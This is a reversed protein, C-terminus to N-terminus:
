AHGITLGVSTPSRVYRTNQYPLLETAEELSRTVLLLVPLSILLSFFPNVFPALLVAIAFFIFYDTLLNIIASIPWRWFFLYSALLLVPIFSLVPRSLIAAVMLTGAVYIKLFVIIGWSRLNIM